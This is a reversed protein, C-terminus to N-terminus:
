RPALWGGFIPPVPLSHHSRSRQTTSLWTISRVSTSRSRCAPNFRSENRLHRSSHQAGLAYGGNRYHSSTAVESPASCSNPDARTEMNAKIATTSAITSAKGDIERSSRWTQSQAENSARVGTGNGPSVPGGGVRRARHFGAARHGPGRRVAAGIADARAGQPVAAEHFGARSRRVRQSIAGRRCLRCLDLAMANLHFAYYAAVALALLVLSIVGVARPPDFGFPPLPFGTLSTLITTALFVATWAGSLSGALLGYLVVLGSLIGILSLIVHIQLM